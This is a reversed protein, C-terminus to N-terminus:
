CLDSPDVTDKEKNWEGPDLHAYYLICLIAYVSKM